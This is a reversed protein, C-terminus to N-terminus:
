DAAPDRDDRTAADPGSESLGSDSRSADEVSLELSHGTASLLGALVAVSVDGDGDLYESILEKPVQLMAALEGRTSIGSREFASNMLLSSQRATQAAVDDLTREDCPNEASPDSM